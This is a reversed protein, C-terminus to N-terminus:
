IATSSRGVRSGLEEVFSRARDLIGRAEETTPENAEGPYRFLWAYKSLDVVREIVSELTEDLWSNTDALREPDHQM